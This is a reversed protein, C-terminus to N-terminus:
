PVSARAGASLATPGAMYRLNTVQRIASKCEASDEVSLGNVELVAACVVGTVSRRFLLNLIQM